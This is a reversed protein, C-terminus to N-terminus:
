LSRLCCNPEFRHGRGGVGANGTRIGYGWKAISSISDIRLSPIDQPCVLWGEGAEPMLYIPNQGQNVLLDHNKEGITLHGSKLLKDRM